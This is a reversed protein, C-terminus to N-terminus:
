AGSRDEASHDLSEVHQVVELAAIGVAGGKGLRVLDDLGFHEAFPFVVVDRCGQGLLPFFFPAPTKEPM